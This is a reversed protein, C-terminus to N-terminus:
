NEKTVVTLGLERAKQHLDTLKDQRDKENSLLMLWDVTKGYEKPTIEKLELLGRLADYVYINYGGPGVGSVGHMPNGDKTIIFGKYTKIVVCSGLLVVRKAAFVGDEPVQSESDFMELLKKVKKNM